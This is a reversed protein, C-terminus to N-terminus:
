RNVYHVTSQEAELAVLSVSGFDVAIRFAREAPLDLCAALVCRIVGSHTFVIAAEPARSRLTALFAVARRALEGLAEGGPPARNPLDAAWVDIDERAIADWACLEWQGFDLERLRADCEVTRGLTRAPAACRELPSSFVPACARDDADIRELTRRLGAQWGDALAVDSAGYCTGEALAVPPHRVLYVRTM